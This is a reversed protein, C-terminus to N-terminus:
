TTNNKIHRQQKPIVMLRRKKDKYNGHIDYLKVKGGM